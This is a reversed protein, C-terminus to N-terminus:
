REYWPCHLHVRPNVDFCYDPRNAPIEPRPKNDMVDLLKKRLICLLNEHTFEEGNAAQFFVPGDGFRARVEELPVGFQKAIQEVSMRAV